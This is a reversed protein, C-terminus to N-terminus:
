LHDGFLMFCGLQRMNAKLHSIQLLLEHENYNRYKSYKVHHEINLHGVCEVWKYLHRDHPSTETSIYYVAREDEDYGLIQTVEWEGQTLFVRDDPRGAGGKLFLFSSYCMWIMFYLSLYCEEFAWHEMICPVKIFNIYRIIFFLSVLWFLSTSFSADDSTHLGNHYLFYM